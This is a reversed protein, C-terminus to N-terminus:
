QFSGLMTKLPFDTRSSMTQQRRDRLKVHIPQYPILNMLLMMYTIIHRKKEEFGHLLLEVALVCELLSEGSFGKRNVKGTSVEGASNWGGKTDNHKEGFAKTPIFATENISCMCMCVVVRTRLYIQKRM